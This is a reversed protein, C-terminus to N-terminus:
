FGANFIPLVGLIGDGAFNLLGLQVGNLDDAFNLVGVQLGNVRKARNIGGAQLGTISGGVHNWGGGQVVGAFSGEVVNVAGVQGVGVFDGGVLSVAGGQVLGYFDGHTQAVVALQGVGWVDSAAGAYVVLGLHLLGVFTGDSCWGLIGPGGDSARCTAFPEPAARAAVLPTADRALGATELKSRETAEVKARAEREAPEGSALTESKPATLGALQDAVARMAALLADERCPAERTAARETTATRLDYLVSTLQCQAGLRLIKTALTKQAALERGLELQCREDVCARYSDAQAQQLRTRLEARPVVLFSTEALRAALYETLAELTTPSLETSEVDFVAVIARPEPPAADTTAPLAHLPPSAALAALLIPIM